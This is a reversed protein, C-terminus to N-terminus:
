LAGRIVYPSLGRALSVFSGRQSYHVGSNGKQNRFRCGNHVWKAQERRQSVIRMQFAGFRYAILVLMASIAGNTAQKQLV